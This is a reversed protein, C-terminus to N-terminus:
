LVSFIERVPCSFGPLVEGGDLTDAESLIRVQTPSTYVHVTRSQADLLWFLRTGCAFLARRKQNLWEAKDEPARIEVALDPTFQPFGAGLYKSSARPLFAVSPALVTDPEREIHWGVAAVVTGAQERQAWNGLLGGIEAALVGNELGHFPRRLIIGRWLEARCDPFSMAEFELATVM